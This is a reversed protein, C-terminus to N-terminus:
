RLHAARHDTGDILEAMRLIGVEGEDAAYDDDATLDVGPPVAMARLLVTCGVAVALNVLLALIGAYVAAHTSVGLHSLPWASGGFHEKVIKGDRGVQPIQYLMALGTLLGAILGVILAWRHLWATYLGLVVAPLIQLVLVGGILQLDTSFQPNVLVIVLVAGVKVALSALKGVMTEEASSAHPRIFERYVSRTFLNAAAISMIAAPVLAGVGIAAFALGACWPPFIQDFFAPIITNGDGGVPRIGNALAAFGLLAILGLVLTYLPLAAMNRKVVQRNKAALIGTQLHPYLLLGLASGVVLTVYGLQGPRSLLLGDAPTPTKAYQAAAIRLIGSWGGTTMSIALLAALITWMILVDKVISILAPARLGSRFTYLALVLFAITLPWPGTIGMIKFVAELGILQLAVYPMTAAIGVLAVLTALTRSGFRARVFEASTIFGHRHAVSWLRSVLLYMIPYVIVAFPVAFFGGAGVAYVLAPVAVFTYATYADGGLLFWTVWNGFARGGLGWEELDQPKDPRRWRAAVFGLVTVFAFVAVFIGFEVQHNKLTSM